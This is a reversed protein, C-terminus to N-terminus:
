MSELEDIKPKLVLKWEQAKKFLQSMLLVHTHDNDALEAELDHHVGSKLDDIIKNVEDSRYLNDEHM